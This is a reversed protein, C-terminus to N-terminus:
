EALQRIFSVAAEKSGVSYESLFAIRWYVGYL